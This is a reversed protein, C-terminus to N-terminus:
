SRHRMVILTAALGAGGIVVAIIAIILLMNGNGEDARSQVPPTGTDTDDPALTINVLTSQITLTPETTLEAQSIPTNTPLPTATAEPPPTAADGTISIDLLAPTFAQPIVDTATRQGADNFTFELSSVDAQSFALQASGSMLPVIVFSGLVRDGSLPNAPNLLSVGFRLTGVNEDVSNFLFAQAEGLDESRRVPSGAETGVIYIQDPNYTITANMGWFEPVDRLAIEVTYFEGTQMEITDARLLLIAGTDDDQAQTSSLAFLLVILCTLAKILRTVRM